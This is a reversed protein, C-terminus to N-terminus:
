KRAQHTKLMEQAAANGAEASARLQEAVTRLSGAAIERQEPTLDPRAMMNQLEIFARPTDHSEMATIASEASAQAEPSAGQFAEKVAGPADEASVAEPPKSDGGCGTLFTASLLVVGMTYCFSKLM